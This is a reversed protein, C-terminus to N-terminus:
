QKEESEFSRQRGAADIRLVEQGLQGAQAPPLIRRNGFDSFRRLDTGADLHVEEIQFLKTILQPFPISSLKSIRLFNKPFNNQCAYFSHHAILHATKSFFM